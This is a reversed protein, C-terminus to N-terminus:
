GGGAPPLEVQVPCDDFDATVEQPLPGPACCANWILQIASWLAKECPTANKMVYKSLVKTPHNPDFQGADNAQIRHRLFKLRMQMLYYCPESNGAYCDAMGRQDAFEGDVQYGCAILPNLIEPPSGPAASPLPPLPGVAAEYVCAAAAGALALSEEEACWGADVWALLQEPTQGGMFGLWAGADYVCGFDIDQDVGTSLPEGLGTLGPTAERGM